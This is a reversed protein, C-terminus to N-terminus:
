LLVTLTAHNNHADSGITYIAMLDTCRGSVSKPHLGLHGYPQHLQSADARRQRLLAMFCKPALVVALHLHSYGM